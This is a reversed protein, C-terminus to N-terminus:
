FGIVVAAEYWAGIILLVMALPLMLLLKTFGEGLAGFGKRILTVLFMGGGAVVMFYATLELALLVLIFLASPGSFAGILGFPIAQAFFSFATLLYAPVGFLIASGFTVTVTVVVFNQYFTVVAARAWNGSAYADTAGVATVATDVLALVADTCGPPLQSGTFAGLVFAGYLLIMTIIVLRRHDRATNLGRRVWRRFFSPTALLYVVLLSFAVFLWGSVPQQLWARATTPTPRRYGVSVANWTDGQREVVAEVVELRDEGRVASYTFSRRNPDESDLEQRDDINVRTGPQPPPNAFLAPLARCLEDTSMGAAVGFNLPEQELWVGVAADAVQEADPGQALQATAVPVLLAAALVVIQRLRSKRLPDSAVEPLCVGLGWYRPYCFLTPLM